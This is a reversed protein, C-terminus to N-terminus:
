LLGSWVFILLCDVSLTVSKTITVTVYLASFILHNLQGEVQLCLLEPLTHYVLLLKRHYM